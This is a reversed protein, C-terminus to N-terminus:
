SVDSLISGSVELLLVSGSRLGIGGSLPPFLSPRALSQLARTQGALKKSPRCGTMSKSKLGSDPRRTAQYSM